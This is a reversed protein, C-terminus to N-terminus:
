TKPRTIRISDTVIISAKGKKIGCNKRICATAM